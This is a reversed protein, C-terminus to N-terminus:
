GFLEATAREEIPLIRSDELAASRHAAANQYEQTGTFAVFAPVDPFRLILVADWKEDLPGILFNGGEGSLVVEGGANAILETSADIYRGYACRGTVSDQGEANSAAPYHAVDRFRMLNLMTVSGAVGRQVFAGLNEPAPTLHHDAQNTM